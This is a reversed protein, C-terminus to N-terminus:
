GLAPGLTALSCAAHASHRRPIMVLVQRTGDALPPPLAPPERDGPRPEVVQLRQLRNLCVAQSGGLM